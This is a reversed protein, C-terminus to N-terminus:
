FCFLVCVQNHVFHPKYISSDVINVSNVGEILIETNQVGVM